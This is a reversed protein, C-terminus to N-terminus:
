VWRGVEERFPPPSAPPTYQGNVLCIQRSSGDHSLKVINHAEMIDLYYDVTSTSTHLRDCLFRLTPSNGDNVKKYAAILQYLRRIRHNALPSLTPSKKRPM